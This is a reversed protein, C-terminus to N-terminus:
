FFYLKKIVIIYNDEELYTCNAVSVNGLIRKEFVAHYVWKPKSWPIIRIKQTRKLMTDAVNNSHWNERIALHLSLKQLKKCSNACIKCSNALVFCVSFKNKSFDLSRSIFRGVNHSLFLLFFSSSLDLGTKQM